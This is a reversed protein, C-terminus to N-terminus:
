ASASEAAPVIQLIARKAYPGLAAVMASGLLILVACLYLGLRYDGTRDHIAGLMIPGVGAGLNFLALQWGYIAGFAKLGYYRSSLFALLDMEAGAALGLLAIGIVAHGGALALAGLAALSLFGFAVYPAHYRDALVGVGVRGAIVAFGLGGVLAGARLPSVGRDVLLPSLHVILASVAAGILFFGIASQWFKVSRMAEKLSTGSAEIRRAPHGIRTEQSRLLLVVPPVALLTLGSAALFGMRWGHHAIIPMLIPPGLVAALGAGAMAIGLALGRSADFWGNLTRSWVVPASGSALVSLLFWGAYLGPLSQGILALLAFAGALGILSVPALRKAGYRDALFGIVPAMVMLGGQQFLSVASTEARNWGFAQSLPRIFLGITFFPLGTGGLGIGCVGALVVRWGRTLEAVGGPKNM